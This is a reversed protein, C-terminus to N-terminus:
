HGSEARAAEIREVMASFEREIVDLSDAGWVLRQFSTAFPLQGGIEYGLQRMFAESTQPVSPTIIKFILLRTRANLVCMFLPGSNVGLNVFSREYLAMRLALNWCAESFVEFNKLETPLADLSRETDPVFVPLYRAPDLRRAFAIWADRDSNRATMFEYDRLTITVLRRGHLRSASWREVYRLAQPPGRLVGINEEGDRAATFLETPHHGIPLAPEYYRPYVRSGAAGRLAAAVNRSPLLTYGAVTPLLTFIPVV